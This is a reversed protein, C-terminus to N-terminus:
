LYSPATYKTADMKLLYLASDDCIFLPFREPTIGTPVNADEVLLVFGWQWRDDRRRDGVSPNNLETNWTPDAM